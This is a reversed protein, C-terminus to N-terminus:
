CCKGVGPQAFVRFFQSCSHGSERRILLARKAEPDLKGAGMVGYRSQGARVDRLMPQRDGFEADELRQIMAAWHQQTLHLFANQDRAAADGEQHISQRRFPEDLAALAIRVFTRPVRCQGWHTLLQHHVNKRLM